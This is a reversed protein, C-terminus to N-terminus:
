LTNKRKAQITVEKSKKPREVPSETVDILVVEFNNEPKLLEKKGPLHFRKDSILIMEIESIIECVRSESIDYTVAIHFQSRYERYYMLMLLLKDANCLKPPTGRTPHKRQSLKYIEVVELMQIFLERKVGTLRKFKPNSLNEIDKYFM